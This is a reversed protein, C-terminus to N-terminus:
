LEATLQGDYKECLDIPFLEIYSLKTYHLQPYGLRIPCVKAGVTTARVSKSISWAGIPGDLACFITQDTSLLFLVASIM